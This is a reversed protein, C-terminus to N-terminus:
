SGSRNFRRGVAYLGAAALAAAIAVCGAGATGARHVFLPIAITLVGGGIFMATAPAAMAYVRAARTRLAPDIIRLLMMGQATTATAFGYNLISLEFWCDRPLIRRGVGIAVVATVVAGCLLLIGAPLLQQAITELRLTAIAVLILLDLALGMIRTLLQADLLHGCRALTLAQRVVWGGILTFLFLPLKELLPRIQAEDDAPVIQVLAYQLGAGVGFAMAVLAAQVTLSEIAGAFDARSTPADDVAESVTVAGAYGRRLGINVLVVGSIVGWLLGVTTFFVAMDAAGPFDGIRAQQQGWAASSGFGGAWSVELLQGFHAPVGFVPRLLVLTVLLGASLQCLILIWAAIAQQATARADGSVREQPPSLLLVAFILPVLVDRWAVWQAAAGGLVQSVAASHPALQVLALGIVGSLLSAPVFAKALPRILTRLALGLLLLGATLLITQQM